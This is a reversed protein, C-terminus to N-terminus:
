RNRARDRWVAEDVLQEAVAHLKVNETQSIHTLREFAEDASGGSRSRLIGVAQDIVARSELARRL